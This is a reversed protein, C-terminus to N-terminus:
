WACWSCCTTPATSSTSSARAQRVAAGGSALASRAAGARSRRPVRLRPRAGGPPLFRLVTLTRIGLRALRPEISFRSQDSHIPYEFLVDLLGQSWFFETQAPLRPATLHALAEDYSAFSKDSQLAARVSSSARRASSRRRERLPRPLGVGLPDRRRAADARRARPRAPRHQDRRAAQPLGHRADGQAARPGAAPPATRGAEPLGPGHRRQSHRPALAAVPRRAVLALSCCRARCRRSSRLGAM